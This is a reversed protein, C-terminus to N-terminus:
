AAAHRAFADAMRGHYNHKAYAPGNYRRAFGAWDRRKLARHMDPHALVFSVFQDLQDGESRQAARMMESPSRHGAAKHNFAMIQFLGWSASAIAAETHIRKARTLRKHEGGGGVYGGTRTNVLDPHKRIWPLPDINRRDLQRRMIHREYLIVVRGDPLFGSGRSEVENVALVEAEGVGLRKAAREIDSHHLLKSTDFGDLAALTKPGFIGDPVLNVERQFKRVARETAPGFDGDPTAGLARQLARVEVGTDGRRLIM